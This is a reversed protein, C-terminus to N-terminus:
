DGDEGVTIEFSRRGSTSSAPGVQAALALPAAAYLTARPLDDTGPTYIAVVEATQEEPLARLLTIQERTPMGLENYDQYCYGSGSTLLYLDEHGAIPALGGYTYNHFYMADYLPDDEELVNPPYAWDVRATGTRADEDLEIEYVVARSHRRSDDEDGGNDHMSLFFSEAGHEEDHWVAAQHGRAFFPTDCQGPDAIESIIITDEHVYGDLTDVESGFVWVLEEDAVSVGWITGGRDAHSHLIVENRVPDYYVSNAYTFTDEHDTVEQTQYGWVTWADPDDMNEDTVLGEDWFVVESRAVFDVNRSLVALHARGEFTIGIQELATTDTIVWDMYNMAYSTASVSPQEVGFEMEGLLDSTAVRSLQPIGGGVHLRLDDNGADFSPSGTVTAHVQAYGQVEGSAIYNGVLYGESDLLLAHSGQSPSGYDVGCLGISTAMVLDGPVDGYLEADFWLTGELVNMRDFGGPILQAPESTSLSLLESRTVVGDKDTLKVVLDYDTGLRLNSLEIGHEQEYWGGSIAQMCPSDGGTPAYFVTALEPQDTELSVTWGHGELEERETLVVDITRASLGELDPCEFDPTGRDGLPGDASDLFTDDLGTGPPHVRCPGSACGALVALWWLRPVALIRPVAFVSKTFMPLDLALPFLLPASHAAAVM